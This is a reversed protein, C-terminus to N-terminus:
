HHGSHGDNQTPPKGSQSPPPDTPTPNTSSPPLHQNQTSDSEAAYVATVPTFIVAGFTLLGLLLGAIIKSNRKKNMM